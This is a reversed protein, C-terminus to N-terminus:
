VKGRVIKNYVNYIMGKDIEISTKQSAVISLM